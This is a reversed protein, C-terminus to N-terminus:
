ESIHVSNTADEWALITKGSDVRVLIGETIRKM